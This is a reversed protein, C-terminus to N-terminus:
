SNIAESLIHWFGYLKATRRNTRGVNIVTCALRALCYIRRGMSEVAIVIGEIGRHVAGARPDPQVQTCGMDYRSNSPTRACRLCLSNLKADKFAAVTRVEEIGDWKVEDGIYTCDPHHIICINGHRSTETIYTINTRVVRTTVNSFQLEITVFAFAHVRNPILNRVKRGYANVCFSTIVRLVLHILHWRKDRNSIITTSADM